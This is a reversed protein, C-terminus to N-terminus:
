SLSLWIITQHTNHSLINVLCSDPVAEEEAEEQPFLALLVIAPSSRVHEKPLRKSTPDPYRHSSKSVSWGQSFRVQSHRSGCTSIIRQPFQLSHIYTILFMKFPLLDLARQQQM